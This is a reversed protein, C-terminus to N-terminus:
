SHRTIGHKNTENLLFAIVAQNIPTVARCVDYHDALPEIELRSNRLRRHILESSAITVQEDKRGVIVLALHHVAEAVELFNTQRYSRYNLAYRYLYEPRSFPLALGGLVPDDAPIHRPALKSFIADAHAKSMAAVAMLEQLDAQFRTQPCIRAPLVYEGSVLALKAIREPHRRATLLAIGAGSCYGIVDTRDVELRTLVSVMDSVHMETAIERIDGHMEPDDVIVRAEWTVVNFREAASTLFPRAMDFRSGFPLVFTVTLRRPDRGSFLARVGHGDISPVLLEQM